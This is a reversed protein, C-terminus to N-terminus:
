QKKKPLKTGILDLQLYLRGTTPLYDPYCTSLTLGDPSHYLKWITSLRYWPGDNWPRILWDGETLFDKTDKGIATVKNSVLYVESTIEGTPEQWYGVVYDGIESKYLAQGALDAHAYVDGGPEQAFVGDVMPAPSAEAPPTVSFFNGVIFLLILIKM